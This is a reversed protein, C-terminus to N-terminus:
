DVGEMYAVHEGYTRRPVRGAGMCEPCCVTPFEDPLTDGDDYWWPEVIEGEGCCTECTDYLM